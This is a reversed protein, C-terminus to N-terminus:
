EWGSVRALQGNGTRVPTPNGTTPAPLPTASKVRAPRGPGGLVMASWVPDSLAVLPEGSACLRRLAMIVNDAYYESALGPARSPLNEAGILRVGPPVTVTTGPRSGIVNGGHPSAAIDVIVSGAKMGAIAAASVLQPRHCGLSGVATIVVDFESIKTDLAHRRALLEQDSLEQQPDDGGVLAGDVDLFRAGRSAVAARGGRRSTYGTVDADLLRATSMAQLGVAGAGVVLVSVPRLAGTSAIMPFSGGFHEEALLVAERGAIRAQTPTPDIGLAEPLRPVRDLSVMTVGRSVWHEILMPHRQPRLMGLMIQGRHLQASRPVANVCALVQSRRYLEDSEVIEAGSEAFDGDSFGAEVGCGAEVLVRFQPDALSAVAGPVLATRHEGPRTEAVVGVVTPM